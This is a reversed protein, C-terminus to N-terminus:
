AGCSPSIEDRGVAEARVLPAVGGRHHAARVHPAPGHRRVGGRLARAARPSCTPSGGPVRRVGAGRARGPLHPGRPRRVGHGAHQDRPPAQGPAARPGIGASLSSTTSGTDLELSAETGEVTAAVVLVGAGLNGCRRVTSSSPGRAEVTRTAEAAPLESLTRAGFDLLVAHGPRVLAQPSMVGGIRPPPPRRAGRARAASLHRRARIGLISLPVGDLRSVAVTDGGHDTATGAPHSEGIAIERALWGAVVHHTAGTDVILMTPQGGVVADVLPASSAEVADEFGIKAVRAPEGRPEEPLSTPPPLSGSAPVPSPSLPPPIPASPSAGCAALALACALPGVRGSVTTPMAM